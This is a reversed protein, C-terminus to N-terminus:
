GGAPELGLETFIQQYGALNAEVSALESIPRAPNAYDDPSRLVESLAEVLEDIGSTPILRGMGTETVPVRVGPLASAVVPTGNLMSEIQVLGFAETHNISPLVTVTCAKYFAALEDRDLNGTSVWHDSLPELEELLRQRYDAEGVVDEFPGAHVVCLDPREELLRPLAATLRHFGKEYSLRASIGVLPRDGLDHRDRFAQAEAETAIIREVPPPVVTVKELRRSVIASHEAYDRTYMAIANAWRSALRQGLNLVAGIVRNLVRPPLLVDCHYTLVSPRKRLRALGTLAPAELQPVQVLAVDHTRLLRWFTPLFMPAVVGKSMAAVVPVRVIEIGPAFRESRPLDREHRSALITVEHGQEVLQNALNEVYIIPGSVYPRFYTMPVLVRM